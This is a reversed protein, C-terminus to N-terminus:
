DSLKWVGKKGQINKLIKLIGIKFLEPSAELKQM